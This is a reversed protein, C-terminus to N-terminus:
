NKAASEATKGERGERDFAAAAKEASNRCALPGNFKCTESLKFVNNNSLITPPFYQELFLQNGFGEAPNSLSAGALELISNRYSNDQLGFLVRNSQSRGAM